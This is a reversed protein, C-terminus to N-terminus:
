EDVMARHLSGRSEPPQRSDEPRRQVGNGLSPHGPVHGEHGRVVPDQPKPRFGAAGGGDNSNAIKAKDAPCEQSAIDAERLGISGPLPLRRVQRGDKGDEAQVELVQGPHSLAIGKDAHDIEQPVKQVPIRPVPGPAVDVGM